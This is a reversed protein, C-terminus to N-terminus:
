DAQRRLFAPIDYEEVGSMKMAEVQARRNNSAFVAPAEDEVISGGVYMPQNTTGDASFHVRFNYTGPAVVVEDGTRAAEIKAFSDGPVINIVTARASFALAMVAALVRM